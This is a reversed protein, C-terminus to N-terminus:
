FWNIRHSHKSTLIHTHAFSTLCHCLFVFIWVTWMIGFFSRFIYIFYLCILVRDFTSKNLSTVIFGVSINKYRRQQEVEEPSPGNSLPRMPYGSFIQKLENLINCMFLKAKDCQHSITHKDGADPIASIVELAHLMGTSFLTADEKSGFNLGWVQRADRWQHFNPTAQNYKLGKVIPCNIVM